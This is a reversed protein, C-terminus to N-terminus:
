FHKPNKDKRSKAVNIYTYNPSPVWTWTLILKHKEYVEFQTYIHVYDFLRKITGPGYGPGSAM